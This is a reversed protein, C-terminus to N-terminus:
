LSKMAVKFITRTQIGSFKALMIHESITFNCLKKWYADM